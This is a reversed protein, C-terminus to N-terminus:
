GREPAFRMLADNSYPGMDSLDTQGVAVKPAGLRDVSLEVPRCSGRRLEDKTPSM